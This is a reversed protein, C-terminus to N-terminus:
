KKDWERISGRNEYHKNNYISTSILRRILNLRIMPLKLYQNVLDRKQFKILNFTLQSIPLVVLDYTLNHRKVSISKGLEM